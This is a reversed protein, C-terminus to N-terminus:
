ARTAFERLAGNFGQPDNVFGMHTPMTVFSAQPMHAGVWRRADDAWDDRAIFLTPVAADVAEATETFDSSVGDAATMIAVYDPAQMGLEVIRAVDPHDDATDEPLGIMYKAYWTWFGLRDDIMLRLLAPMGDPALPAEGWDDPNTPDAPCKPTEDCIVVGRVADSGHDRLYALIDFAGFSWGLIIPRDLGLADILAALDKGRQAFTNGETPKSSGGHGRPDFTVVRFDEALGDLQHTFFDATCTWGPVLVLPTGEGRTLVRLTVGTPLDILQETTDAPAAPMLTAMGM